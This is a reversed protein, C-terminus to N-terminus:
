KFLFIVSFPACTMWQSTGSAALVVPFSNPQIWYESVQEPDAVHTAPIWAGPGDEETKRPVKTPLHQEM